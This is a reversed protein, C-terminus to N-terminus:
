KKKPEKFSIVTYDKPVSFSDAPISAGYSLEGFNISLRSEGSAGATVKLPKDDKGIWWLVQEGKPGKVSWKTADSSGVKESGNKSRSWGEPLKGRADGQQLLSKFQGIYGAQDLQGLKGKIGNLTDPYLLWAESTSFDVHIRMSEGTNKETLDVRLKPSEWFLQGKFNMNGDFGPIPTSNKAAGAKGAGSATKSKPAAMNLEATFSGKITKPKDAAYLAASGLLLMVASILVTYKLRM